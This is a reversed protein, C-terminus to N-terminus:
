QQLRTQRDRAQFRGNTSEGVAYCRNYRNNTELSQRAVSRYAVITMSWKVTLLHAHLIGIDRHYWPVAAMYSSQPSPIRVNTGDFSSIWDYEQNLFRIWLLWICFNINFVHTHKRRLYQVRYWLIKYRKYLDGIITLVTFYLLSRHALRIAPVPASFSAYLIKEV